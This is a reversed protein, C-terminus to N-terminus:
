KATCSTQNVRSQNVAVAPGRAPGDVSHPDPLWLRKSSPVPMSSSDSAPASNATSSPASSCSIPAAAPSVADAPIQEHPPQGPLQRHRRHDVHRGASRCSPARCLQGALREPQRSLPRDRAAGDVVLTVASGKEPRRRRPLGAHSPPHAQSHDACGEKGNWIRWHLRNIETVIVAKAHEREPTDIPLTDATKEAHHLRMAIHFWDLYPPKTIGADVLM